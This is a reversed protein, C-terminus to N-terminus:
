RAVAIEITLLLLHIMFYASRKTKSGPIFKNDIQFLDLGIKLTTMYPRRINISIFTMNFKIWLWVSRLKYTGFKIDYKKDEIPTMTFKNTDM